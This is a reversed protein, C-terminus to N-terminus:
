VSLPWSADVRPQLDRQRLGKALIHKTSLSIRSRDTSGPTEELSRLQRLEVVLIRHQLPQNASREGSALRRAADVHASVINACRLNTM